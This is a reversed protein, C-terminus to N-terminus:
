GSHYGSTIAWEKADQGSALCSPELPTPALNHGIGSLSLGEEPPNVLSPSNCLALARASFLTALCLEQMLGPESSSGTFYSQATFIARWLETKQVSGPLFAHSHTVNRAWM